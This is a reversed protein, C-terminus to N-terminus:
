FCKLGVRWHRSFVSSAVYYEKYGKEEEVKDGVM